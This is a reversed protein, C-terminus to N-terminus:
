QAFCLLKPFMGPSTGSTRRYENDGLPVDPCRVKDGPAYVHPLGKDSDRNTGAWMETGKANSAGVTLLERVYEPDRENALTAPLGDM